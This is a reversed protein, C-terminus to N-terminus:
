MSGEVLNAKIAAIACGLSSVNGAAVDDAQKRYCLATSISDGSVGSLQLRLSFYFLLSQRYSDTLSAAQLTVSQQRYLWRYFSVVKDM